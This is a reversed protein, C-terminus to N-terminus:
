IMEKILRGNKDFCCFRARVGSLYEKGNEEGQVGEFVIGALTPSLESQFIVPCGSMGGINAFAGFDIDSENKAIVWADKRFDIYFASHGINGEMIVEFIGLLGTELTKDSIPRLIKGPYGLVCVTSGVRLQPSDTMSLFNKEGGVRKLDDENFKFTCIDLTDDKDIIRSELDWFIGSGIWLLINPKNREKEFFGNVCHACTVAFTENGQVFFTTGNVITKNGVEYPFTGYILPAIYRQYLLFAPDKSQLTHKGLNRTEDNM